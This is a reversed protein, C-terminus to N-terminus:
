RSPATIESATMRALSLLWNRFSRFSQFDLFGEPYVLYYNRGTWFPKGIAIQLKNQQLERQILFLPLMAFGYGTQALESMALIPAIRVLNWGNVDINMDRFYDEWDYWGSWEHQSTGGTILPHKLLDEPKRICASGCMEPSSVIVSIEPFLKECIVGKWDPFGVHIAADLERETFDFPNPEVSMNIKTNPNKRHFDALNPALWNVSSSPLVGLRVVNWGAESVVEQAARQISLLGLRVLRHFERADEHLIVNRGKKFFLKSNLQEELSKIQRTVASQTLGMEEGARTFSGCRVATDFVALARMTPLETQKM